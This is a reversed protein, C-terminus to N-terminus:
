TYRQGKLCGETRKYGDVKRRKDWTLLEHFLKCSMNSNATGEMWDCDNSCHGNTSTTVDVGVVVPLIKRNM